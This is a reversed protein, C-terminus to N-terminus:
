AWSTRSRPPAKPPPWTTSTPGTACSCCSATRSRRAAKRKRSPSPKRRSRRRRRLGQDPQGHRGKGGRHAPQAQRERGARSRRRLQHGRLRQRDTGRVEQVPRLLLRHQQDQRHLVHEDDRGLDEPAHPGPGQPLVPHRRRIIGTGRVPHGQLLRCRRDAEAHGLHGAGDQGQAAAALGQRRIRRDLRRRRERRRLRRGQGPLAPRPRRAAPRGPRDAGQLHGEREPPRREVERDAPPGRQQQGQGSRLHHPRARGPGALRRRQRQYHRWRRRWVGFPHYGFHRGHRRSTPFQPNEYQLAGRQTGTFFPRVTPTGVM